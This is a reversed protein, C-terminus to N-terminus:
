PTPEWVQVDDFWIMSKPSGQFGLRGADIQHLPDFTDIFLVGDLYVKFNWGNVELRVTYWRNSSIVIYKGQLTTWLDNMHPVYDVEEINSKSQIQFTYSDYTYDGTVRFYIYEMGVSADSGGKEIINFRYQIVGDHFNEPGFEIYPWNQTESETAQLVKNTNSEPVVSWDGGMLRFGDMNGAEFNQKFILTLPGLEPTKTPSIELSPTFTFTPPRTSTSMSARTITLTPMFIHTDIPTDTMLGALPGRGKQGMNILGVALAVGLVVLVVLGCLAAWLGWKISRQRREPSSLLADHTDEEAQGWLNPIKSKGELEKGVKITQGSALRELAATFENMTQYRDEPKKSLAKFLVKEVAEPLDSAFQRPRPLPESAQKIIVGLPTDAEFPRRGTLM